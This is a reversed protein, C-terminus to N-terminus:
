GEPEEWGYIHDGIPVLSLITALSLSSKLYYQELSCDGSYENIFIIHLNQPLFTNMVHGILIKLNFQINVLLLSYFINSVIAICTPFFISTLSFFVWGWVIFVCPSTPNLQTNMLIQFIAYFAESVMGVFTIRFTVRDALQPHKFM